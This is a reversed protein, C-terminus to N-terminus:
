TGKSSMSVYVQTPRNFRRVNLEVDIIYSRKLFTGFFYFSGSFLNKQNKQQELVSGIIEITTETEAETANKADTM